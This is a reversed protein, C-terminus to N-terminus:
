MYLGGNVNLTQGTIYTGHITLFVVANAIEEKDAFRGMPIKKIIKERVKHPIQETMNTEVFGPCVANVRVNHKIMEQALSKTFGIIGAKAASYNCQGMGGMQGIISSINVICGDNQEKMTPLVANTSNFVGNLNVDVVKYWDKPDMKLMLNDKTIGANNVLLDIRGFKNYTKHAIDKMDDMEAVDGSITFGEGGEDKIKDAIKEAEQKSKNYNVVVNAGLKALRESIAAGIGKAGGTVLAVKGELPLPQLNYDYKELATNGNIRKAVSDESISM